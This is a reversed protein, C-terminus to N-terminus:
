RTPRGGLVNRKWLEGLTYDELWEELDSADLRKLVSAGAEREVVIVNEPAFASLLEVSQTSAIVQNSEAAQMLMEALLNIAYPHLGLEPEDILVTSPLLEAPQLLLTALCIFRLTGDSLMHAKRPTDPDSQEYWELEMMEPLPDRVVFGGFFPAALKITAVIRDYADPYDRQLRALYAALNDASPKLRLNDNSAHPQKVAASSSTDHFHYIRWGRVAPRVWESVRSRSSTLKAEEHGHGLDTAQIEDEDDLWTTERTFVLRNDATPALGFRYGHSEFYFEAEIQKTRKRGGFLLADPGGEQQVHRQLNGEMMAALLRFLSVFNSKGAGNAGILLNM